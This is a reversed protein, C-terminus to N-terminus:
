VVEFFDVNRVKFTSRKTQDQLRTEAVLDSPFVIEIGDSVEAM